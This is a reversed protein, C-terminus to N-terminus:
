EESIRKRLCCVLAHEWVMHIDEIAEMCDSCVICNVDCFENVKGGLGGTFAIVRMGKEKAFKAANVVNPSSGSGSYVVLVDGRNVYNKMQETFCAEYSFDNALCTVIPVSDNLAMAKFRKKNLVSLGKVFDNAFHSATAASGGNGAVFIWKGKERAEMLLDAAASLKDFCSQKLISRSGDIYNNLANIFDMIIVGNLNLAIFGQTKRINLFAILEGGSAAIGIRHSCVPM